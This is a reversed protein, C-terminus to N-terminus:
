VRDKAQDNVVTKCMNVNATSRGVELIEIVKLEENLDLLVSEHYRIQDETNRKDSYLANIIKSEAEIRNRLFNTTNKM